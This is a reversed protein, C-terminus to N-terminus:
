KANSILILVIMEYEKVHMKFLFFKRLLLEFKSKFAEDLFLKLPSEILSWTKERNIENNVKEEFALEM